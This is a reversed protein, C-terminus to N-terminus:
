PIQSIHTHSECNAVYRLHIVPLGARVEERGSGGVQDFVALPVCDKRPEMRVEVEQEDGM